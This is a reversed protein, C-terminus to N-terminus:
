YLGLELLIQKQATRMSREWDTQFFVQRNHNTINKIKELKRKDNLVNSKIFENASAVAYDIRDKINEKEDYSEDLISSWTLFGLDRLKELFKHCGIIIFPRGSLLGKVTKETIFFEPNHIISEHILLLSSDLYAHTPIISASLVGPLHQDWWGTLNKTKNWDLELNRYKLLSLDQTKVYKEIGDQGPLENCLDSLPSVMFNNTAFSVNRNILNNELLKYYTYIRPMRGQGLTCCLNNAYIENKPILFKYKSSYLYKMYNVYYLLNHYNNPGSSSSYIRDNPHLKIIPKGIARENALAESVWYIVLDANERDYAYWKDATDLLVIKPHPAINFEEISDIFKVKINLRGWNFSQGHNLITLM